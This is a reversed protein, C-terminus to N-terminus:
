RYKLIIISKGRTKLLPLYLPKVIFAFESYVRFSIEHEVKWSRMIPSFKKVNFFIKKYKIINLKNNFIIEQVSTLGLTSPILSIHAGNPEFSDWSGNVLHNLSLGKCEIM